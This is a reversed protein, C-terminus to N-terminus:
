TNKFQLCNDLIGNFLLQEEQETKAITEEKCIKIGKINDIPAGDIFQEEFEKKVYDTAYCNVKVHLNKNIDCRFESRGYIVGVFEDDARENKVNGQHLEEREELYENSINSGINEKELGVVRTRKGKDLVVEQSNNEATNAMVRTSEDSSNSRHLSTKRINNKVDYNVKDTKKKDTYLKHANRMHVRVYRPSKYDKGCITCYHKRGDDYHVRQKHARLYMASKLVSGCVDCEQNGESPHVNKMHNKLSSPHTFSKNCSNVFGQKCVHCSLINPRLLEDMGEVQELLDSTPESSMQSSSWIPQHLWTDGIEIKINISESNEDCSVDAEEKVMEFHSNMTTLQKMVMRQLGSAYPVLILQDDAYLLGKVSLEDMTLGCEYEKLGYPYSDTFLNFLWPSAICGQRVAWREPLTRIGLRFFEKNKSAIWSDVWNKTDEYSTFQQESLAHAMSRFLHYDSPAIDPSYPPHPLVEWDLTKLNNKVPVAVHPANNHLLIIKDHRSYYQPRKEKLARSLKM